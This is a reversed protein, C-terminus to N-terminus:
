IDHYWNSLIDRGHLVPYAGLQILRNTGEFYTDFIHGPTAFIDRNEDIGNYATILSGSRKRAEVIYIGRSLGVVIRNRQPFHHKLPPTGASYESLLLEKKSIYDQLQINEKPYYRDLGCGIVAITKGGHNIASQHSFTDIGKALGSIVKIQYNECFIEKIIKSVIKQGHLSHKRSGVVALGDYKSILSIDGKYFLAVPPLYIEKLAVPYISSLISIRKIGSKEDSRSANELDFVRQWHEYKAILSTSAQPYSFGKIKSVFNPYFYQIIQWKQLPTWKSQYSLLTILSGLSQKETMIIVSGEM